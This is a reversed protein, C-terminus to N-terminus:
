NNTRTGTSLFEDLLKAARAKYDEADKTAEELARDRQSAIHAEDSLLLLLKMSHTISLLSHAARVQFSFNLNVDVHAKLPYTGDVRGSM